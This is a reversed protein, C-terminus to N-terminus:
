YEIFESTGDTFFRKMAVAEAAPTDFGSWLTWTETFREYDEDIWNYTDVPINDITLNQCEMAKFDQISTFEIRSDNCFAIYKM